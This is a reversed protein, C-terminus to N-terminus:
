WKGIVLRGKDDEGQARAGLRAGINVGRRLLYTVASGSASFTSSWVRFAAGETGQRAYSIASVLLVLFLLVFVVAVLGHWPAPVSEGRALKAAGEVGVALARAIEGAELPKALLRCLQVVDAGRNSWHAGTEIAVKRDRESILVLIGKRAFVAPPFGGRPAGEVAEGGDDDPAAAPWEGAVLRAIWELFVASAYSSVSWEESAAYDDVSRILVFILPAGHQRYIEQCKEELASVEEETLASSAERREDVLFKGAAPPEPTDLARAVSSAVGSSTVLAVLLWGFLRRWARRPPRRHLSSALVSDGHLRDGHLRRLRDMRHM